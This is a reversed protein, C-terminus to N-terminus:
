AILETNKSTFTTPPKLPVDYGIEQTGLYLPNTLFYKFIALFVVPYILISGGIIKIKGCSSAKKWINFFCCRLAKKRKNVGRQLM